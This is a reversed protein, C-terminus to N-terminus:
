FNFLKTLQEPNEPFGAHEPLFLPFLPFLPVDGIERIEGIGKNGFM